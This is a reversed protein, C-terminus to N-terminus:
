PRVGAGPVPGPLGPWLRGGDSELLEVLGALGLPRSLLFGQAFGCGLSELVALQGSTEVGEAVVEVRLTEGLAVVAACVARVYPDRDIRSLLSRDLKIVDVPLGGLGTLSTAGRGLDDLAVHVGMRRLASVDDHVRPGTLASEALEVVLRGAPLGSDALARTVDAVLTGAALHAASVNVGLRLAPGAHPLRVAASTADRLVWRQLDVAMGARAAVPLFEEPEVDGLDPHRWRMLAEVGAVRHEALDVVPLWALELEGRDRAGVLDARLRERRDRVASLEPRHRSVAGSGTARADALALEARDHVQATSLGASVPALGVVAGLDVIGAGTVIPAELVALCRAALRDVEAPTGSALVGFLEADVRAVDDEGRVTARLRRAVEVLAAEVAYRGADEHVARLGHVEVLLVSRDAAGDTLVRDLAREHAARNPLGTLPDTFALATLAREHEARATVDRGQLVLARVAPDARLDSVTTELERPHGADELLRVTHRREVPLPDVLWTRLAAADEAPVCDTLPRGLLGPRAPTVWTVRLDGDLELVVDSGAAALARHVTESRRLAAAARAGDRVAASRQLTTLLLCGALAAGAVPPLDVDLLASGLLALVAAVLALQPVLQERLRLHADDAPHARRRGSASRRRTHEM